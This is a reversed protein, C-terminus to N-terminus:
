AYLIQTPRRDAAQQMAAMVDKTLMMTDSKLLEFAPLCPQWYASIATKSFGEWDDGSISQALTHTRCIRLGSENFVTYGTLALKQVRAPNAL